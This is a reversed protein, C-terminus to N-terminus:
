DFYDPDDSRIILEQKSPSHSGSKFSTKNEFSSDEVDTKSIESALKSIDNIELAKRLSVTGCNMCSFFVGFKGKQMMLFEGCLCKLEPMNVRKHAVCVPLGQENMALAQKGCFPCGELKSEGYRKPLHM